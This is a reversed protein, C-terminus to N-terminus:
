PTSPVLAGRYTTKHHPEIIIDFTLPQFEPAVIEFHHSGPTLNLHQFHGDFDDVVGAYYGDVYVEANKPQVQLRLQGSDDFSDFPYPTFPYGYGLSGFGGYGYGGYGCGGYGYGGYGYGCGGYRYPNMFPNLLLSSGVTFGVFPLPRSPLFTPSGVVAPPTIM